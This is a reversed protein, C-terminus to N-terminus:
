EEGDSRRPDEAAGDGDSEVQLAASILIEGSWASASAGARSAAETILRWEHDTLGIKRPRRIGGTASNARNGM